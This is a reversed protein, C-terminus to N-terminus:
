DERPDLVILVERMIPFESRSLFFHRGRLTSYILRCLIDRERATLERKQPKNSGDYALTDDNNLM